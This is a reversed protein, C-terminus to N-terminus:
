TSDIHEWEQAPVFRSLHGVNTTAIVVDDGGRGLLAAQAALIVDGDLAPDPATPKGQQRASAWFRAAQLMAETTLPAYGLSAKYRDLVAVSRTKGARLLERRLEYDAIEPILVDIGDSLLSWLWQAAKRNKTEANPHTVLGLPGTDLLV